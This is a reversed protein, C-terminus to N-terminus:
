AVFNYFKDKRSDYISAIICGNENIFLSKLNLRESIEFGEFSNLYLEDSCIAANDIVESISMGYDELIDANNLCIISLAGVLTLYDNGKLEKKKYEKGFYTVPFSCSVGNLCLEIKKQM